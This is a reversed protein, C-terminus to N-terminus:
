PGPLAREPILDPAFDAALYALISRALAIIDEVTTHEDPAHINREPRGLGGLLIERIGARQVFGFDSASAAGWARFEEPRYGFGLALASQWRPWHPGTPDETPLLHGVLHTEVGIGAPVHTAIARQIEALADEFHEEPPYRRSVLIEFLAPVQGGATGGHAAAISLQAALPGEAHPPPPLASVRKAIELKLAHLANLLPLTAEIANLGTGLRNGEGAHAASGKLRVLLNFVGFSGAWIRPAASGNFNVIHRPVLGAEALYRVGPYLGIEEDTCLLLVPDYTLPVQCREAVSLALLTAAISGKMDAAGLGYLRNEVRTLHYPDHTWGPAVPVTDVHFYLGLIPRGRPREAIVNTRRGHAPGNPVQWLAEPVVIRRGAFGLPRLLDDMLDAFADYGVGPPFASDIAVMCELAAVARGVDDAIVGLARELAGNSHDTKSLSAITSAPM